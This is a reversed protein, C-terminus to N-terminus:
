RTRRYHAEMFRNWAGDEGPTFSTLVRHDDSRFTIVDKYDIMSGDGAMSPGEAILVLENKGVDLKGDYIWFHTMMSGIFSGLFRGKAPNYGLTMLTVAETGDPMKGRGEGLTWLGGITRTHETGSMKQPPQDPGMSAEGEITWEGVLKQLWRHEDQPKAMPMDM